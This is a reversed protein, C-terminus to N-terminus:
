TPFPVIVIKIKLHVIGETSTQGPEFIIITLFKTIYYVWKTHYYVM